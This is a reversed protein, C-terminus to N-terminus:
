PSTTIQHTIPKITEIPDHKGAMPTSDDRDHSNLKFIKHGTNNYECTLELTERYDDETYSIKKETINNNSM